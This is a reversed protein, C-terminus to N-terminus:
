KEGTLIYNTLKDAREIVRIPDFAAGVEHQGSVLEVMRQRVRITEFDILAKNQMQHQIAAQQEPSQTNTNM